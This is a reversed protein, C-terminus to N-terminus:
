TSRILIRTSTWPIWLRTSDQSFIGSSNWQSVMLKTWTEINRHPKSGSWDATNPNPNEHMEGLCLVSNVKTRQLSISSKDFLHKWSSNKWDITKVGCIENQESVLKTSIDIMQTSHSSRDHEHHFSMQLEKGHICVIGINCVHVNVM